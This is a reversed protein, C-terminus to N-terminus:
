KVLNARNKDYAEIMRGRLKPEKYQNTWLFWVARRAKVMGFTTRAKFSRVLKLQASSRTCCFHLGPAPALITAVWISEGFHTNEVL